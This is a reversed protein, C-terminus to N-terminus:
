FSVQLVPPRVAAGKVAIQLWTGFLSPIYVFQPTEPAFVNFFSLIYLKFRDLRILRSQYSRLYVSKVNLGAISPNVHGPAARGAHKGQFFIGSVQM